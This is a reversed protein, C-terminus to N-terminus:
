GIVLRKNVEGVSKRAYDEGVGLLKALEVMQMYSCMMSNSRALTTFSVDLGEKRAYSFLKGMKFMLRSRKLGYLGMIESLPICLVTDNDAMATILKKDIQADGILIAAVGANAASTLSGVPGSAIARKENGIGRKGVDIFEIDRPITLIRGFGLRAALSDDVKCTEFVIDYYPL